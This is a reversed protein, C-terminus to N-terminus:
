SRGRAGLVRAVRAYSAPTITDPPHIAYRTDEGTRYNTESDAAYFGRGGDEFAGRAPKGYFGCARLAERLTLDHPGPDTADFKWGGPHAFSSDAYDGQEASEPTVTDYTVRFRERAM